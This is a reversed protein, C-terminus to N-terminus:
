ASDPGNLSAPKTTAEEASSTSREWFPGSGVLKMVVKEESAVCM